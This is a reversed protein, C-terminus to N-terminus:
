TAEERMRVMLRLILELTMLGLLLVAIVPSVDVSARSEGIGKKTATEAAPRPTLNLEAESPAAVRAESKGDITVQYPGIAGPEARPENGEWSVRLPGGPGTVEVHHALPFRWVTGVETRRPSMRARAATTWARLMALFVPRLPLDSADVGFPLTVIWAEGRGLHRRALLPAGDSWSLLAEFAKNDEDALTARKKAELDVASPASEAFLADATKPDVGKASTGEWGVPHPLVPEFSAGLPASAARPGLALLVFGGREVFTGLARRQEPTWGASDDVLVGLFPALDEVRDPVAPLPRTAVELALAGLAQEVIPAGGTAAAQGTADAVVAVSGAGAEIVVPAADDSEIADGPSLRAVLLAADTRKADEPSLVLEIEDSGSGAFPARALVTTGDLVTLERGKEAGGKADEREPGCAVRVRVRAGARDAQLVGCDHGPERLEPLPIWVPMDMGQGVPPGGPNGDALDSLLVIRRDVQPMGTLLSKAMTIAGDLDTGRDSPTAAEIVSRAAALEATAALAVRAPKGALVVAVADGERTSSLLELAGEKARDFRTERGLERARLVSVDAEPWLKARMSMSDDLVIAIAVSAGSSRSLSLRSCHVLPTAGLLALLVVAVGRTAFLARDELKSRSRARPPAPRVLHAPPFDREEANKRRLRHALYPFVVLLAAALALVYVFSL